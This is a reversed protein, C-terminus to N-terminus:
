VKKIRGVQGLPTGSTYVYKNYVELYAAGPEPEDRLYAKESLYYYRGNTIVKYLIPDM